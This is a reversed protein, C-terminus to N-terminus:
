EKILQARSQEYGNRLFPYLDLADKKIKDYFGIQFSGKNVTDLTYLGLYESSNSVVNYSRNSKYYIPNAYNDPYMSIMDRLNSPGLIPLVIHFGSGVGWYGLTQGFDEEHPKIDLFKGAVDFIGFIGVTSNIVFRESEQLSNKFKTQLLNNIFRIPFLINHFANKVGRRAQTPVVKKYGRTVPDFIYVYFKDNFNTMIRNYSSLPDYIEQTTFEDEFDDAFDDDFEEDAFSLTIVTLFILCIYLFRRFIM